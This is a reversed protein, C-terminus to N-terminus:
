AKPTRGITTSMMMYAAKGACRYLVSDLITHRSADIRIISSGAIAHNGVGTGARIMWNTLREPAPALNKQNGNDDAGDCCKGNNHCAGIGDTIGGATGKSGEGKGLSVTIQTTLQGGNRNCDESPGGDNAHIIGALLTHIEGEAIGLQIM